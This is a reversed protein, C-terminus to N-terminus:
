RITISSAPVVGVIADGTEPQVIAPEWAYTGTTVVRAVYRLTYDALKGDYTVCFRVRSGSQDYPLVISPDYGGEAEPDAWRSGPGVPALGSPVLETVQRCGTAAQAGFTMHLEVVVLDAVTVAPGPQVSRSITVDADPSTAPSGIPERWGTTVGVAGALREVSFSALQSATLSLRVAGGDRLDVVHREGDVTWAVRAPTVALRELTHTVFAIAPLVEIRDAAPNAEVYAWFRPALPDGVAAALAAALATAETIDAATTGVRLRAVSGAAEGAARAATDLVARATATDGLGAAGLALMLQERVTLEDDALASAVERIVPEGLGALGALAVMRRERTEAADNRVGRLYAALKQHDVRDPAVIAVLASLGLDSSAYPVIAFGGDEGQYREPAFAAATATAPEIGFRDKLLATALDAAVARDLRAGGGEALETLLSLYRGGGADAIVVSTFGAGGAFPGNSPLEVYSTRQRTLRSDVVTFTRTLRDTRQATGSGTTASITVTQSGARLAPLAVDLNAFAASALSGSDFGLGPATVRITVPTGAAIASGFTRVSISPRDAALYEPAISADVFFPLGVAVLTSGVGAQLRRTVAAATVRWSTLDDSLRFTVSGRGDSGTTISRFLLSDRFDDRGDGGGGTTDGGGAQGQPDRHSGYTGIMGDGIGAYLDGLPDDDSAAGIAFLKEDIARLVVTAAVPAGGPARTRVRVTVSAGPAYAAADTTVDVQLRRDAAQFTAGFWTTGTYGDGTFRVGGISLNPPGWAPFTTVFRRSSQVRAGHIGLQATFFLYRSGDGAAQSRNPDALSLDIREGIGYQGDRNASPDTPDLTALLNPGSPEDVQRAAYATIRAVHGDPDAVTAVIRYEHGSAAAPVSATWAGKADTVVHVTGAARDVVETEYVPVARKEVFDYETGVQTRKPILEVFTVTVSAKRVATGRPDLEWPSAGRALESELRGVAVLHVEGSATVRGGAFRATADITRSSPYVVVDRSGATIEAEEARAPLAELSAITPGEGDAGGDLAAITRWVATGLADTTAQGIPGGEGFGSMRLPVGPVPTGEFFRARVTTTVRDGVIYVRHGTTVDLRYAPKSLPGVAVGVERIVRTGVLLTLRYDGDPLGALSLSGSFAGAGDLRRTLSAIAPASSASEDDPSGFLKVVVTAPAAGTSRDRAVGWLNVTDGSRYRSRDTRLISWTRQDADSWGLVGGGDKASGAVTPLLVRRGDASRVVVVPDCPRVCASGAAPMLLGPTAAVVLGDAGTRGLSVGAGVHATTAIATAGSVADHTRLDNVWVLTKTDSVALYGALDTVQLVLQIPKDGASQQVLYWGAPLRAPLQVWFANRFPHLQLDAAVVRTLGGVDVLGARSYRTWDPRSRISRFADIATDITALRYVAFPLSAPAKDDGGTAWIAITPREATASEVLEDPFVWTRPNDTVATGAATEFQFRTDVATKEGTAAVAIGRSVTVTYLTKPRLRRDPVFALTRGHEEYRGPTPPDIAVHSAADVVGDQDFTIEIGTDLPVGTAEAGPLMGVIRLPQAAQFAWTDILRGDAGRLTFRYATGAALPRDPRVVLARDGTEPTASFAFAPEVTLGAALASAATGDTTELRFRAAAPVVRGRAGSATMRVAPAPSAGTLRTFGVSPGDASAAPGPSAGASANAIPGSTPRPGDHPRGDSWALLGTVVVISIVGATLAIARPRRDPRLLHRFM